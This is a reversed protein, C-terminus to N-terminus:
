QDWDVTPGPRQRKAPTATDLAYPRGKDWLMRRLPVGARKCLEQAGALQWESFREGVIVAQLANRYEVYAYAPSESRLVIRYEHEAAWDDTKLLYVDDYHADILRAVAERRRGSDFVDPDAITRFASEAIGCHTYTVSGMFITPEHRGTQPPKQADFAMRLRDANFVLCVGRHVDGYQEWMRPRAWCCAFTDWREGVEDLTLSLVRMSDRITKITDFVAAYVELAHEQSHEGRWTMAPFLDKNETPDRMDGYRSLQLKGTPLVHEFAVEARTYHALLGEPRQFSPVDAPPVETM